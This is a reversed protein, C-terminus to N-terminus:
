KKDFLVDYKPSYQKVATIIRSNTDGLLSM